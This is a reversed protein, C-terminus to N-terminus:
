VPEIGTTAEEERARGAPRGPDPGAAAVLAPVAVDLEARAVEGPADGLRNAQASSLAARSRERAHQRRREAVRDAVRARKRADLAIRRRANREDIWWAIPVWLVLGALGGALAVWASDLVREPWGAVWLAVLAGSAGAAADLLKRLLEGPAEDQARAGAAHGSPQLSSPM